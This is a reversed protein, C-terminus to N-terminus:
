SARGSGLTSSSPYQVEEGNEEGKAEPGLHAEDGESNTGGSKLGFNRGQAYLSSNDLARLQTIITDFYHASKKFSIPSPLYSNCKRRLINSMKRVPTRVFRTHRHWRQISTFNDCQKITRRAPVFLQLFSFITSQATCAADLTSLEAQRIIRCVERTPLIFHISTYSHFPLLLSSLIWHIIVHM